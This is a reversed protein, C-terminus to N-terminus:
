LAERGVHSRFVEKRGGEPESECALWWIRDAWFEAGATALRV